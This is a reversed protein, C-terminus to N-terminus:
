KKVVGDITEDGTYTTGDVNIATHQREIESPVADANFDNTSNNTDQLIVRGDETTTLYKRRVSKFYRDADMDVKGCHTWGMDVSPACLTWAFVSEVSLNVFDIIQDNPVQYTDREMPYIGAPTVLDYSYHYANNAVFSEANGPIRAIGYSKFGRNHLAFITRTYCYWKDLDPVQENQLDEYNPNTSEDYWEFDAHSLDFSLPNLQRHDIANDAILFYEGPQVPHDTGSGPVVYVADVAVASAMIDPTYDYKQPTTFTSEILAIGDAYVVHDTNNYLKVYGDGGYQQGNPQQTCTFFIEAIVLDDKSANVFPSLTLSFAAGESVQVSRKSAKVEAEVDNELRTKATFEVDYLGPLITTGAPLPYAFTSVERNAVNTFTLQADYISSETLGAPLSLTVTDDLSVYKPEDDSCAAFGFAAAAIILLKAFKKM